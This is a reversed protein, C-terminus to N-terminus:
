ILLMKEQKNLGIINVDLFYLFSQGISFINGRAKQIFLNVKHKMFLVLIKSNCM